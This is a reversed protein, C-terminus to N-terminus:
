IDRYQVLRTKNDNCHQPVFLIVFWAIHYYQAAQTPQSHRVEDNRVSIAESMEVYSVTFLVFIKGEHKSTLAAQRMAATLKYRYCTMLCAMLLRM